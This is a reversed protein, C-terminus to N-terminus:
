KVAESEPIKWGEKKMEKITKIKLCKPCLGTEFWRRFDLTDLLSTDKKCESCIPKKM